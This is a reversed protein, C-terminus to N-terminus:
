QGASDSNREIEAAQMQIQKNFLRLQVDIAGMAWDIYHLKHAPRNHAEHMLGDHILGLFRSRTQRTIETPYAAWRKLEEYDNRLKKSFRMQEPTIYDAPNYAVQLGKLAMILPEYNARKELRIFKYQQTHKRNHPLINDALEDSGLHSKRRSTRAFVLEQGYMDQQIENHGMRSIWMKGTSLVEIGGGLALLCKVLSLRLPKQKGIQRKNMQFTLHLSHPKIPYFNVIETILQNLIWPDATAPKSLEGAVNLRGPALELFGRKRTTTKSLGHDDIYGGLKWTLIDLCFDNFYRFGDFNQDLRYGKIEHIARYGENSMELEAGLPMLGKQRNARIRGLESMAVRSDFVSFSAQVAYKVYDILDYNGLPPMTDICRQLLMDIAKPNSNIMKLAILLSIIRTYYRESPQLRQLDYRYRSHIMNELQNLIVQKVALMLYNEVFPHSQTEDKLHRTSPYPRDLEHQLYYDSVANSRLHSIVLDRETTGLLERRARREIDADLSTEGPRTDEIIFNEIRKRLWLEHILNVHFRDGFHKRMSKTSALYAEAFVPGSATNIQVNERDYFKGEYRDIEMMASHPIDYIVFGEIKTNGSKVAYFYVNDPSVRKYGPLLALEGFLVRESKQSPKLTFSLGCVSNFITSDRLSGYIFLNTSEKEM